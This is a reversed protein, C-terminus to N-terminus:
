RKKKEAKTDATHLTSESSMTVKLSRLCRLTPTISKRSPLIEVDGIVLRLKCLKTVHRLSEFSRQRRITIVARIFRDEMSHAVLHPLHVPLTTDSSGGSFLLGSSTGGEHSTRTVNATAQDLSFYLKTDNACHFLAVALQNAMVDFDAVDDEDFIDSTRDGTHLTVQIGNVIFSGKFLERNLHRM